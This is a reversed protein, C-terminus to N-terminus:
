ARTASYLTIEDNLGTLAVLGIPQFAVGDRAVQQKIEERKLVLIFRRRGEDVIATARVIRPDAFSATNSIRSAPPRSRM